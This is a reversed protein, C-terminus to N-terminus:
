RSRNCAYAGLNATTNKQRANAGFVIQFGFYESAFGYWYGGTINNNFEQGGAWHVGEGWDHGSTNLNTVNVRAARCRHPWSRL